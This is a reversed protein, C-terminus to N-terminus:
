RPVRSLPMSHVSESEPRTAKEFHEEFGPVMEGIFNKFREAAVGILAGKIHDWTELVQQTRPDSAIRQVTPSGESMRASMGALRNAKRGSAMRALVVGGGFAVGILTMPNKQFHQRWDTASKVKGELEHLNAGLNARTSEIQAAIQETTEGM